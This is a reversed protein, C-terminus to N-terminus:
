RREGGLLWVRNGSDTFTLRYPETRLLEEIAPSPQEDQMVVIARPPAALLDRRQEAVWAANWESTYDDFFRSPSRRGSLWYLEPHYRNQIREQPTTQSRLYEAIAPGRAFVGLPGGYLAYSPVRLASFQPAVVYPWALATILLAALLARDVLRTRWLSAAGLAVGASIGPLGLVYHHPYEYSTLKIRAIVLVIWAVAAIAPARLHRERAAILGGLLGAAWLGGAPWNFFRHIGLDGTWDRGRLGSTAGASRVRDFVVDVFDDLAGALALWLAFAGLVALAGVIGCGLRLLRARANPAASRLLEWAVIPVVLLFIVNVAVAAAAAAGAAAAWWAGRRTALYWAGAMPALGIQESNVDEAQMVVAGTFIALAVGALAGAARGAARAVYGAVALAALALTLTVAGRVLITHEQAILKILAFVLYLLPGKNNAADSYPAQGDLIAQGVYLYQGADNQLPARWYAPRSLWVLLLLLPFGVLGPHRACTRRLAASM